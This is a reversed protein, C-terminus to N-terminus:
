ARAKCSWGGRKREEGVDQVDDREEKAAWGGKKPNRLQGCECSKLVTTKNTKPDRAM